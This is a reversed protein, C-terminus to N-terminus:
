SQVYDFLFQADNNIQYTIVEAGINAEIDKQKTAVSFLRGNVDEDFRCKYYNYGVIMLAANPFVINNRICIIMIPIFFLLFSIVGDYQTFNFACLPLAFSFIFTPLIDKDKEAFCVIRKHGDFKKFHRIELFMDTLSLLILISIIPIIITEILINSNNQYISVADMYIIVLWLPIFSSFFLSPNFLITM